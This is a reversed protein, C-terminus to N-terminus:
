RKACGRTEIKNILHGIRSLTLGYVSIRGLPIGCDALERKGSANKSQFHIALPKNYHQLILNVHVVYTIHLQDVRDVCRWVRLTFESHADCHRCNKSVPEPVQAM